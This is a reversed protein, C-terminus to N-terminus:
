EIIEGYLKFPIAKTIKVMIFEGIKIKDKFKLEWDKLEIIIQKMNDTYGELIWKSIKNVLIEKNKWIEKENNKHSIDKLVENLRNRRDRKIERSINDSYNKAALTGPRPSYIGIYVMDFWGYTILDLTQQFDEETEDPFGVIIDTTISINKKIKKINNIFDKSQEVTYGRFMRKLVNNSWSQLPIHIHPCLKIEKTHLDLLEKNYYTPYPSTYRLRKLWQLKLIEKIITTFDPHKNVIQGLLVIEEVGNEIHIRAEDVIQDISFYKELWRAYPVICYACFQNCWTAIPIYATKQHTNMSTSINKPIIKEYEHILTQDYSINYGIKKLILPLFWTDDIRRMLEINKRKQTLNHFIPNFINNIGVIEPTKESSKMHNIEETSVWIVMPNKTKISWMFNGIKLKTKEKKLKSNRMNHQIMCWTIWIKQNQKITKFKGTIKDEAKQKISCTDFIVIDAEKINETYLLWCNTLVAKIRASDAYNMQCGFVLIHFKM